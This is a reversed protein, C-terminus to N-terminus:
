SKIDKKETEMRVLLNPIFTESFGAAVSLLLSAATNPNAIAFALQGKVAMLMIISCCVSVFFREVGYFIYAYSPIEREFAMRRLKISVSFFGGISGATATFLLLRLAPASDLPNCWYTYISSFVLCSTLFIMTLLYKLSNTVRERYVQNIEQELKSLERNALIIDGCSLAHSIIQGMRDRYSIEDNVKYLMGKVRSLKIRVGDYRKLLLRDNEVLTRINVRISDSISSTKIEYIVFEDSRVIIKVIFNGLKDKGGAVFSKLSEEQEKRYDLEKQTWTTKTEWAPIDSITDNTFNEDGPEHGGEKEIKLGFFQLLKIILNKM